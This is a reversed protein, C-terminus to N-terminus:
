IMLTNPTLGTGLTSNQDLKGVECNKLLFAANVWPHYKNYLSTGDKGAAEFIITGGPHRKWYNTIDYVVGKIVCWVDDKRNHKAVEQITILKDPINAGHHRHSSEIVKGKGLGIGPTNIKGLGQEGNGRLMGKRYPENGGLDPNPNIIPAERRKKM